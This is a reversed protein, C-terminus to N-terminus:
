RYRGTMRGGAIGLDPYEAPNLLEQRPRRIAAVFRSHMAARAGGHGGPRRRAAQRMATFLLAVAATHYGTIDPAPGAAPARMLSRRRRTRGTGSLIHASALLRMSGSKSDCYRQLPAISEAHIKRITAEDLYVQMVPLWARLDLDVFEFIDAFRAEGSLTEVRPDTIGARRALEILQDSDGLCFPARLADAAADGAIRQLVRVKEAYGPNHELGNWVSVALRGGPRLVRRMEGLAQLRQPFFMLGFQCLVCDFSDDVLPLAGADGHRWEIGADLSRAVHLMGPSIDLGLPPADRGTIRVVSRTVVGTGCAVDLVRQGAKVGAAAILPAAWPQFLAPVFKDEYFQAGHVDEPSAAPEAATTEPRQIPNGTNM